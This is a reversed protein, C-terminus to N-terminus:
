QIARRQLGDVGRWLRPRGEIRRKKDQVWSCTDLSTHAGPEQPVTVHPKSGEGVLTVETWGGKGEHSGEDGGSAQIADCEDVRWEHLQVALQTWWLSWWPSGDM